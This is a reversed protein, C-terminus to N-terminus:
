GAVLYFGLLGWMLMRPECTVELFPTPRCMREMVTNTTRQTVTM